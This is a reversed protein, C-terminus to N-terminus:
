SEKPTLTVVANQLMLPLLITKMEKKKKIQDENRLLLNVERFLNLFTVDNKRIGGLFHSQKLLYKGTKLKDIVEWEVRSGHVM